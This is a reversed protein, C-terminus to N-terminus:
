VQYSKLLEIMAPEKAYDLPTLGRNDRIDVKAGHELSWKMRPMPDVDPRGRCDLGRVLFHLATGGDLIGRTAHKYVRSEPPSHGAYVVPANIDVGVSLLFECSEKSYGHSPFCVFHHLIPSLSLDASYDVLLQRTSKTDCINLPVDDCDDLGNPYAGNCLLYEM